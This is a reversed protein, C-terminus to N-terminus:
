KPLIKLFEDINVVNIAPFEINKLVDFHADNSILYDANGALATDTFKNDDADHTILNWRYYIETKFVNPLSVLMELINQAVIENAKLAIIEEYETLIENSVIISLSNTLLADFIARYPSRRPISVLLVNTDLVVKM